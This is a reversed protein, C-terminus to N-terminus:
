DILFSLKINAIIICLCADLNFKSHPDAMTADTNRMFMVIYNERLKKSVFDEKFHYKRVSKLLTIVLSCM